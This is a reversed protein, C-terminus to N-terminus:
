ARPGAADTTLLGAGTLLESAQMVVPPPLGSRRAVDLLDHSGDALSLVWLLARQLAPSPPGGLGRYLGRRGLQPEGFPALSVPRRNGDVLALLTAAAELAERLSAGSLLTLDDASSHYAPYGEEASRTLRGVPLRFGPSGFQREDYGWPTFPSLADGADGLLLGAARDVPADGAFSRKYRLPGPDGVLGLVFGGALQPLRARNQALWTISGITGPGFVFRWTLHRPHQAAWRALHAAVVLGSVNDNALSPHCTHTYVLGEGSGTGPVVVEGYSLSGPALTTDVVVEYDGPELAERQRHSLCFGWQDAYYSTRYPIVDPRAADSHLHPELAALSLRGRFPRSYGVLHLNHRAFDAVRTGDPATLHAERVTWEPPVEWDLVPTGSPVEHVTLPAVDRLAALTARVGSGTLSRPLPYLRAALAMLQDPSGEPEPVVLDTWRAPM